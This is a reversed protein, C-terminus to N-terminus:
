PLRYLKSPRHADGEYYRGTDILIPEYKRKIATQERGFLITHVDVMNALTFEQSLLEFAIKTFNVKYRLQILAEKIYQMSTEDISEQPIQVSQNIPSVLGIDLIDGEGDRVDVLWFWGSKIRRDSIILNYAESESLLVVYVIHATGNNVYTGVQRVKSISLKIGFADQMESHVVENLGKTMNAINIRLSPLQIKDSCESNTVLVKLGKKLAKRSSCRPKDALSFLIFDAVVVKCACTSQNDLTSGQLNIPTASKIDSKVDFGSHM